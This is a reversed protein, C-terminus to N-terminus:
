HSLTAIAVLINMTGHAIVAPWLSKSREYVWALVLGLMFVSLAHILYWHVVTFLLSSVWLAHAGIRQKFVNYLYARFFLEEALPALIGISIVLILLVPLPKEVQFLGMVRGQESTFLLQAKQVGFITAALAQSLIIGTANIVLMGFGALVGIKIQRLPWRATVGFDAWAAELNGRLHWLSLAIMLVQQIILTLPIEWEARYHTPLTLMVIAASASPLIFALAGLMALIGPVTDTIVPENRRV